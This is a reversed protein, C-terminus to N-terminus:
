RHAGHIRRKGRSCASRAADVRDEDAARKEVDGHVLPVSQERVHVRSECPYIQARSDHTVGLQEVICVDAQREEM